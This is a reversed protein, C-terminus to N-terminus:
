SQAPVQLKKEAYEKVYAENNMSIIITTFELITFGIVAGAVANLVFTVAVTLAICILFLIFNTLASLIINKGTFVEKFRVKHLGHVIYAEALSIGSIILFVAVSTFIISYAWLDALWVSLLTLAAVLLFDAVSVLILKWVSRAAIDKRIQFKLIFYGAIIGLVAFLILATFGKQIETTATEAATTIKASVGELESSGGFLELVAGSLTSELWEASILTKLAQSPNNWDLAQVCEILYDVFSQPKAQVDSILETSEKVLASIAAGAVPAFISIGIILGVFLTGFPILVHKFCKFYRVIGDKIM